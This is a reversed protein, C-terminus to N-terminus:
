AKKTADIEVVNYVVNIPMEASIYRGDFKTAKCKLQRLLINVCLLIKSVVMGEILFQANGM